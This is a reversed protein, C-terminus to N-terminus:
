ITLYQGDGLQCEFSYVGQGEKRGEKGGVEFRDDTQRATQRGACGYLGVM